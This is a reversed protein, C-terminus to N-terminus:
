HPLTDPHGRKLLNHTNFHHFNTSVGPRFSSGGGGQSLKLCGCMCEIAMKALGKEERKIKMGRKREFENIDITNQAKLRACNTDILNSQM